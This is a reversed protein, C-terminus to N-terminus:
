YSRRGLGLASCTRRTIGFKPRRPTRRSLSSTSRSAAEDGLAALARRALANMMTELTSRRRRSSSSRREPALDHTAEVFDTSDVNSVFRFTLDAAHLLPTGYAARGIPAATGREVYPDATRTGGSSSRIRDSFVAMQDLVRPRRPRHRARGRRALQEQADRRRPVSRNETTRGTAGSCRRPAGRSSVGGCNCSSGCREDTVRNKSYDLLHRCGRPSGTERTADEASLDRLNLRPDRRLAGLAPWSPRERLPKM